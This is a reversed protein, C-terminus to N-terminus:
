NLQDSGLAEWTTPNVRYDKSTRGKTDGSRGGSLALWGAEILVGCAQDMNRADRVIAPCGKGQRLAVANFSTTKTEAIWRALATAASLDVPQGADGFVRRAMPKFFQDILTLAGELAALNIEEPETALPDTMAWQMLELALAIRLAQGPMKGWADKTLGEVREKDHAVRWLQFQDATDNTLPIIHPEVQDHGQVNALPLGFLRRAAIEAPDVEWPM